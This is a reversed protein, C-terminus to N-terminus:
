QMVIFSSQCPVPNHVQSLLVRAQPFLLNEVVTTADDNLFHVHVPVHIVPKGLAHEM